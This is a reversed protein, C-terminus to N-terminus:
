QMVFTSFLVAQVPLDMETINWFAAAANAAETSIKQGTSTEKPVVNLRELNQIDATSPQQQLVYIATLQPSIISNIVLAVEKAMMTKGEVTALEQMQRSSLVSIVKDRILPLFETIKKETDSDSTRLVIKTQLYHEGGRGPLNVVIEDMPIYIPAKNEKRDALQKKLINEPKRAEEEAHIRAEEHKSHYIYAGVAGAVIVGAVIMLILKKKKKKKEAELALAADEPTAAASAAAVAAVAAEASEQNENEEAM